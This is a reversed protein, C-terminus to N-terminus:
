PIDGARLTGKPLGEGGLANLKFEGVNEHPMFERPSRFFAMPSYFVFNSVRSTYLCAYQEVQEGFRSNENGEKFHLGWNPNFGDDLDKELTASITNCSRMAKRLADLESKVKHFDAELEKNTAEKDLRKEIQSLKTKHSSIEDDVKVRMSEIQSLHEIEAARTELYKMEDEIEQVIMCTRWMSTKKSKLIDGYIHDGVYLVSDGAHGTLREFDVLNGGQYIHNRELSTAEGIVRNDTSNEDIELFPKRESFFGPKAGATIIFDFYNKWSPYEPLLGDLLYHMVANTYDWHSNTLIFLKKGGSRLKHLAAGLDTDRFIYKAIDKRIVAKLSNDRHVTDIAERIDDYLKTFDLPLSQSEFHDVIGALLCAEPLAFLTDIWAYEASKLRIRENRYLKDVVEESLRKRGHFARGVHGFRDMKLLNGNKKDVFLGRLVFHSDYPIQKISPPYGHHAVLREVTMDYSVQELHRQHYIALTYDMDFGILDVTSLNLNRNVFVQRALPIESKIPANLISSLEPSQLLLQAQELANRSADSQGAWPHSGHISDLIKGKVLVRALTLAGMGGRRV